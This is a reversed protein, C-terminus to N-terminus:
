GWTLLPLNVRCGLMRGFHGLLVFALPALTVFILGLARKEHTFINGTSPLGMHFAGFTFRGICGRNPVGLSVGRGLGRGGARWCFATGPLGTFLSMPPPKHSVLPASALSYRAQLLSAMSGYPWCQSIRGSYPIHRHQM